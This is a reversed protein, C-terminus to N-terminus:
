NIAEYELINHSSPDPPLPWGVKRLTRVSAQREVEPRAHQAALNDWMVLDHQRWEHQLTNGPAYLHAFVEELLAESAEPEMGVFHSTMQQSAYVFEAGTRPHRSLVPRVVSYEKDRKPMVLTGGTDDLKRHKFSEPGPVHVAELGELRARLGAPLTRTAHVTSAFYTPPVPPEVEEGWLSIVHFPHDSWMSDAHYLLVGYPAAAGEIKNSIYFTGQQEANRALHDDDLEAPDTGYVLEALYQQYPRDLEIDRFVLIAHEDFLARLERVGDADLKHTPDLGHVEAGFGPSLTTSDFRASV